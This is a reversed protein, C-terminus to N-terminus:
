QDKRIWGFQEDFLLTLVV